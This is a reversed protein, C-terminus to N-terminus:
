VKQNLSHITLGDLSKEEKPFLNSSIWGVLVTVVIGISAYLLFNVESYQQVIWLVLIGAFAGVLAGKASARRSFIGLMFLGGM